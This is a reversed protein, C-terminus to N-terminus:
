KTKKHKLKEVHLNPMVTESNPFNLHLTHPM